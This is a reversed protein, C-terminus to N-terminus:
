DQAQTSSKETVSATTHELHEAATVPPDPITARNGSM